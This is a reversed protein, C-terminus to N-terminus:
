GEGAGWETAGGKEVRKGEAEWQARKRGQRRQWAERGATGRGGGRLALRRPRLKRRVPTAVGGGLEPAPGARPRRGGLRPSSREQRGKRGVPPGSRRGGAWGGAFRM